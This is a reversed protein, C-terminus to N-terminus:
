PASRCRPPITDVALQRCGGARLCACWPGWPASRPCSGINCHLCGPSYRLGGLRTRVVLPSCAFPCTPSLDAPAPLLPSGALSLPLIPESAEDVSMFHAQETNPECCRLHRASLTLPRTPDHRGRRVDTQPTPRMTLQGERCGGLERESELFVSVSLHACM